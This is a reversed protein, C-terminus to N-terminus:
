QAAVRVASPFPQLPVYGAAELRQRYPAAAQDQDLHQLARVLPDLRAFPLSAGADPQLLHRAQTWRATAEARKGESLALEGELLQTRALWQRLSENQEAEWAPAILAQAAVLHARATANDGRELALQAQLNRSRVLWSLVRESKPEASHARAFMASAEAALPEADTTHGAMALQAQWWRCIAPSVQWGNNAPDQQALALALPTATALTARAQQLRGRQAQADTLLILADIRVEKWEANDPDEAINRDLGRVQEAYFDEAQALAGQRAALRGLWSATNADEFRLQLDHPRRRLWTRYLARKARMEQEAQAYRGRSEDLVALNHHGYAVEKQWDYNDPDMAALRIASDRYRTLWLAADDHRGQELAVFGIWYESQALDFLRLGNGPARQYLASSRAHAERFASMAADHNGEGLRVEGIGTLSRAQEELARDSLDRPDLTAFYGTAKDDVARM